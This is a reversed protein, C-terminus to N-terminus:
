KSLSTALPSIANASNCVESGQISGLVDDLESGSVFEGLLLLDIEM